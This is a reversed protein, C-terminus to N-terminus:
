RRLLRASYFKSLKNRPSWTSGAGTNRPSSILGAGTGASREAPPLFLPSGLLQTRSATCSAVVGLFCSLICHPGSRLGSRSVNLRVSEIPRLPITKASSGACHRQRTTTVAPGRGVKRTARSTSDEMRARGRISPPSVTRVNPSFKPGIGGPLKCTHSESRNAFHPTQLEIFRRYNRLATKAIISFIGHDTLRHRSPIPCFYYRSSPITRTM